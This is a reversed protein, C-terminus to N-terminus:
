LVFDMCSSHSSVIHIIAQETPFSAYLYAPSVAAVFTSTKRIMEEDLLFSSRRVITNESMQMGLDVKM